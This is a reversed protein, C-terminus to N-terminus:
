PAVLAAAIWARLTVYDPDDPGNFIPGFRHGDGSQGIGAVNPGLTMGLLLSADVDGAVLRAELERRNHLLEAAQLPAPDYASRGAARHLGLAFLEFAGPKGHCSPNACRSGLLPQVDAAFVQPDGAIWGQPPDDLSACGALQTLLLTMLFMTAWRTM